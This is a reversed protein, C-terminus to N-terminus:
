PISKNFCKKDLTKLYTKLRIEEEVRDKHTVELQKQLTVLYLIPPFYLGYETRDGFKSHGDRCKWQPLLM